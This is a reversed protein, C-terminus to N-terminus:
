SAGGERLWSQLLRGTSVPEAKAREILQSKLKTLESPAEKEQKSDIETSLGGVVAKAALPSRLIALVQRKVPRLFLAYVIAFLLLIFIYSLLSSWQQAITQV